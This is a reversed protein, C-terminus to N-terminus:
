VPLNSLMVSLLAELQPNKRRIRGLLAALQKCLDDLIQRTYAFSGAKELRSVVHRKVMDDTTRTTLIRIIEGKIGNENDTDITGKSWIAHLLPFSFKGETLDECFCGKSETMATEKMNKYDDVIQYIVGFLDVVQDLLLLPAPVCCKMLRLALRFLGGTKHHVMQLYEAETPPQLTDRWYLEMGQGRHLNLLEENFVRSAQTWCESYGGVNEYEEPGRLKRLEHEAAFYIYNAANITQAVGYVHHSALSGRRFKSEDQIDDILLSSNHLLEIVHSITDFSEQDIGLWVNLASMFKRRFNKGSKSAVYNYPKTIVKIDRTFILRSFYPLTRLNWPSVSSQYVYANYHTVFVYRKM